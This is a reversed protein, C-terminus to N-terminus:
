PRSGGAACGDLFLDVIGAAERAADLDHSADHVLVNAALMGVFARALADMIWGPDRESLDRATDLLTDDTPSM